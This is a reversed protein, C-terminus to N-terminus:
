KCSTNKLYFNSLKNAIEQSAYKKRILQLASMKLKSCFERNDLLKNISTIYGSATNSILINKGHVIDIGEAGLSTTVIAKGLALSEIIKIRMGSGAFLPVVMIDNEIIFKEASEVEGHFVVGPINTIKKFSEPANRGAVHFELSPRMRKLIPWVKKFFWMLGDRNPKWDLAGLYFLNRSNSNEAEAQIKDESISAPITIAPKANGLDDFRILDFRTIPVLMDYKNIVEIEFREVRNALNFLYLRKLPSATKRALKKWIEFEINHARFSIKAKCYKKVTNIYPTLYVGELQILDFTNNQLIEKLQINYEEDIFREATFPLKSFLLNKLANSISIGTDVAVGKWNIHQTIENPYQKINSPHKPTIMTLVTVDHKALALDKIIQLSAITGGDVPPYPPKHTLVLIKLM